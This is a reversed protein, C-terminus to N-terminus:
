FVKKNFGDSYIVSDLQVEVRDGSEKVACAVGHMACFTLLDYIKDKFAFINSKSVEILFQSRGV